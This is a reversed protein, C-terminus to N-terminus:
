KLGAKLDIDSHPSIINEIGPAPDTLEVETEIGIEIEVEVIILDTHPPPSHYKRTDKLGM